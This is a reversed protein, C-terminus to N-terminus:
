WQYTQKFYSDEFTALCIFMWLMQYGNYTKQITKLFTEYDKLWKRQPLLHLALNELQFNWQSLPVPFGQKKRFVLRQPLYKKALQKLLYKPIDHRESILGEPLKRAIKKSKESLFKLKMEYPIENCVWEILKHDLFPVRSEVSHLMTTYDLRTLLSNLHTRMFFRFVSEEPCIQSFAERNILDFNERLEFSVTLHQNRIERPVYDYQRIFYDYFSGKLAIKNRFVFPSRFIKGYGFFVEDAGEGSLVVKNNQRIKEGLLFLPIENPVGLPAEKKGILHTLHELYDSSTLLVEHHTTEYQTAVLRAYEFENFEAEKFGISYTHLNENFNSALATILSSDLGGSLFCGVPVDSTMQLKVTERLRYELERLRDEERYTQSFNLSPIQWFTTQTQKGNNSITLCTAPELSHIGKFFTYPDRVYRMALYDDIALTNFNAEVLGSALIGKIESAFVLAEDNITAYYLPKVGLRDRVLTLTQTHKNFLAIAFIGNAKELFWHIGKQEIAAAIVETDSQTRFAYSNGLQAKIEKFNYIEGNFTLTISKDNSSFPQNAQESLDIIKLRTHGLVLKDHFTQYGQADPGRHKLAALMCLIRKQVNSIGKFSYIGAIGCM